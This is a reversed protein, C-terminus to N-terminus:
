KCKSLLCIIVMLPKGKKPHREAMHKRLKAFSDFREFVPPEEGDYLAPDKLMAACVQCELSHHVSRHRELKSNTPFAASCEECKFRRDRCALLTDKSTEKFFLFHDYVLNKHM